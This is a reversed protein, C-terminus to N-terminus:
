PPPVTATVVQLHRNVKYNKACQAFVYVMSTLFVVKLILNQITTPDNWSGSIPFLERLWFPAAVTFVLFFATASLWGYGIKRHEKMVRDFDVAHQDVGIRKM